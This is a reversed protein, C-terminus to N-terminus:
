KETKPKNKVVKYSGKVKVKEDVTLNAIKAIAKVIEINDIIEPERSLRDSELREAIEAEKAVLEIQQAKLIERENDELALSPKAIANFASPNDIKLKLLDATSISYILSPKTKEIKYDGVVVTEDVNEEELKSYVETRMEKALTEIAKISQLAKLAKEGNGFEQSSLFEKIKEIAEKPLENQEQTM